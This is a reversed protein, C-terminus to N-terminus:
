FSHAMLHFSNRYIVSSSIIKKGQVKIRHLEIGTNGDWLPKHTQNVAWPGNDTGEEEGKKKAKHSCWMLWYPTLKWHISSPAERCHKTCPKPTEHRDSGRKWAETPISINPSLTPLPSHAQHQLGRVAQHMVWWCHREWAGTGHTARLAGPLAASVAHGLDVRGSIQRWLWARRWGLAPSHRCRWPRQILALRFVSLIHIIVATPWIITNQQLQNKPTKSEIGSVQTRGQFHCGTKRTASKSLTYSESLWANKKDETCAEAFYFGFDQSLLVWSAILFPLPEANKCSLIYFNIAWCNWPNNQKRGLNTLIVKNCLNDKFLSALEHIQQM